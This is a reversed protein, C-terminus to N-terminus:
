LIDKGTDGGGSKQTLELIKVFIHFINMGSSGNGAIFLVLMAVTRVESILVVSSGSLILDQFTTNYYAKMKLFIHLKM